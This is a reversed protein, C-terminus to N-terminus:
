WSTVRHVLFSLNLLNCTGASFDARIQPRVTDGAALFVLSGVTNIYALMSAAGFNVQSRRFFDTTNRRIGITVGILNAGSAVIEAYVELYYLGGQGAPVTFGATSFGSGAYVTPSILTPLSDAASTLALNYNNRLWEGFATSTTEAQVFATSAIQGTNTGLAATPATPVGTFAPSALPAGGLTSLMAGVSAQDLVTKAASSVNYTGLTNAGTKELTGSATSPIAGARTVQDNTWSAVTTLQEDLPQRANIATQLDTQASLTGTISGWAVSGAAMPTGLFAVPIIQDLSGNSLAVAVGGSASSVGKGSAGPVIRQGTTVTGGLQVWAIGQTATIPNNDGLSIGVSEQPSTALGLTGDGNLRLFRARPQSSTNAVRIYSQPKIGWPYVINSLVGATSTFTAIVTHDSPITATALFNTLQGSPSYTLVRNGNQVPLDVTRLQTRLLGGENYMFPSVRLVTNSLASQIIPLRFPTDESILFTGEPWQNPYTLPFSTQNSVVSVSLNFAEQSISGLPYNLLKFRIKAFSFQGLVLSLTNLSVQPLDWIFSTNFSNDPNNGLAEYVGLLEIQIKGALQTLPTQTILDVFNFTLSNVSTGLNVLYCVQSPESSANFNGFDLSFSSTSLTANLTTTPWSNDFGTSVTLPGIHTSSSPIIRWTTGGDNSVIFEDRLLSDADSYTQPTLTAPLSTSALNPSPATRQNGKTIRRHAIILSGSGGSSSPAVSPRSLQFQRFSISM